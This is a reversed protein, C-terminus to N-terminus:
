LTKTANRINEVAEQIDRSYVRAKPLEGGSIKELSKIITELIKEIKSIDTAKNEFIEQLGFHLDDIRRLTAEALEKANKCALALEHVKTISEKSVKVLNDKNSHLNFITEFLEETAVITKRLAQLENDFITSNKQLKLKAKVISRWKEKLDDPTLDELQNKLNNYFTTIEIIKTQEGEVQAETPSNTEIIELENKLNILADEISIKKKFGLTELIRFFWRFM